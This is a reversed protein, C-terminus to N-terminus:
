KDFEGTKLQSTVVKRRTYFLISDKGNCHLDGYFSHKWGSFAFFAVPAPVGLNVGLMGADINERFYRIAAANNTFICSGNAFENQHAIEIAEKLSKVRIISVFPAFIEEAWIKM